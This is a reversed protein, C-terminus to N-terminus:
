PKAKEKFLKVVGDTIDLVEGNTRYLVPSQAFRADSSDVILDFRDKAYESVLQDTKYQDRFQLSQRSRRELIETIPAKAEVLQNSLTQYDQDSVSADPAGIRQPLRFGRTEMQKRMLQGQLAEYQQIKAEVEPSLAETKKAGEMKDRSWQFIAADIERKNAFAWRVPQARTLALESKITELKGLVERQSDGQRGCGILGLCTMLLLYTRMNNKVRLSVEGIAIQLPRHLASVM